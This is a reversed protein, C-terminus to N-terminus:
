LLFCSLLIFSLFCARTWHTNQKKREKDSEHKGEKKNKNKISEWRRLLQKNSIVEARMYIFLYIGQSAHFHVKTMKAFQSLGVNSWCVSRLNWLYFNIKWINWFKVGARRTLFSRQFHAFAPTLIKNIFSIDDNDYFLTALRM